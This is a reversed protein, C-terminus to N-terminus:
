NVQPTADVVQDSAFALTPQGFAQLHLSCFIFQLGVDCLKELQRKTSALDVELAHHFNAPCKPCFVELLTLFYLNLPLAFSSSNSLRPYETSLLHGSLAAITRMSQIPLSTHLTNLTWVPRNPRSSDLYTNEFM